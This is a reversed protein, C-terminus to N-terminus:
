NMTNLARNAESALQPKLNLDLAKRLAAKSPANEKLQYYAMGLYYLQESDASAEAPGRGLLLVTQRYEARKYCLIGLARTLAVDELFSEHAKVALEYAKAENNLHEFYLLALNRTASAFL